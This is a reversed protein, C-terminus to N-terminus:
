PAALLEPTRTGGSLLLLDLAPVYAASTGSRANQLAPGPTFRAGDFIETLLLAQNGASGGAILVRGDALVAAAHRARLPSLLESAGSPRGFAARAADFVEWSRASADSVGGAIFVCSGSACAKSGAPLMTATHGTRAASMSPLLAMTLTSPDFLEASSTGGGALLVRGDPLTTATAYMRPEILGNAATSSVVGSASWLDWSSLATGACDDGGAVLVRAGGVMAAAANCRQISAGAAACSSHAGFTCLEFAAGSANGGAVLVQGGGIATATHAARAVTLAPGATMASTAPDVISTATSPSGDASGAVFVKGDLQGGVIVVASGPPPPSNVNQQTTATAAPYNTDGGYAAVYTNLGTPGTGNASCSATAPPAATLSCSVISTASGQLSFTVTGTPPTPATGLVSINFQIPSGPPGPQSTTFTLQPRIAQTFNASTSGNFNPDGSYTAAITHNGSTL